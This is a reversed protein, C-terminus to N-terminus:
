VFFQKDVGKETIILLAGSEVSIRGETDGLSNSVGLPMSETLKIGCAGYKLGEINVGDAAGGMAFVSVRSGGAGCLRVGGNRIVFANSNCGVLEGKHGRESMYLLLAYNALTHDERGGTGGLIVFDTYGRRAGELYALHMDTEDKEVPYKLVECSIREGMDLRSDMDGILLNPSIGVSMLSNYGGDAAIVFDGDAPPTDLFFEGAGAIYCKKM